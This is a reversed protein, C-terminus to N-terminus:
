SERELGMMLTELIEYVNIVELRVGDILTIVGKDSQVDKSSFSVSKVLGEDFELMTPVSSGHINVYVVM